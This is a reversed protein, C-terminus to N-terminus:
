LWVREEFLVAPGRIAPIEERRIDPRHMLMNNAYIDSAIRNFPLQPDLAGFENVFMDLYKFKQGGYFDAFVNVHELPHGTIPEVHEVLAKYLRDTADNEPLHWVAMYPEQDVPIIMVNCDRTRM